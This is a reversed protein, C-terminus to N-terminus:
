SKTINLATLSFSFQVVGGSVAHVTLFHSSHRRSCPIDLLGSNTAGLRQVGRGTTEARM